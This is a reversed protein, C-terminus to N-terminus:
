GRPTCERNPTRPGSRSVVAPQEPNSSAIIRELIADSDLEEKEFVEDVGDFERSPLFATALFLHLSPKMQKLEKALKIGDMPPHDSPHAPILLRDLIAAKIKTGNLAREEQLDRLSIPPNREQRYVVFDKKGGILDLVRSIFLEGSELGHPYVAEAIERGGAVENIRRALWVAHGRQDDVVVITPTVPNIPLNWGKQQRRCGFPM